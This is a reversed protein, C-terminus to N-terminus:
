PLPLAVLSPMPSGGETAASAFASVTVLLRKSPTIELAVSAPGDLGEHLVTITGDQAVRTIKNPGNQAVLLSGDTDLVIGDAGHLDCTEAVIEPMDAMGNTRIPIRLIRGLDTNAVYINDGDHTIGNAGIAFGLGTGGCGAIDGALLAHTSWPEAVGTDLPAKFVVGNSDTIFLDTDKVDLGNPFTMAPTASSAFLTPVGGEPAFKYVGPPPLPTAGVAAVGAYVNGDADTALGTTYTMSPSPIQGFETVSSGNVRVVRGTPAFGVLPSGGAITLGEPLEGSAVDFNALVNSTLSGDAAGPGGDRQRADLGNPYDITGSDDGCAVCVLIVSLCAMQNKM